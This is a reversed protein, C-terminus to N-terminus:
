AGLDLSLGYELISMSQNLLLLLDRHYVLHYSSTRSAVALFNDRQNKAENSGAALIEDISLKCWEKNLFIVYTLACLIDNHLLATTSVTVLAADRRAADHGDIPHLLQSLYIYYLNSSGTPGESCAIEVQWPRIDPYASACLDIIAQKRDFSKEKLIEQLLQLIASMM